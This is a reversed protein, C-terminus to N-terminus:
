LQFRMETRGKYEEMLLLIEERTPVNEQSRIKPLISKDVLKEITQKNLNYFTNPM